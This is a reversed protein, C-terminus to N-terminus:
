FKEELEEVSKIILTLVDFVPFPQSVLRSPHRIEKSFKNSVSVKNAADRYM